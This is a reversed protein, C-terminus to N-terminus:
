KIVTVTQTNWSALRGDATWLERTEVTFGERAALTRGRHFLPALRGDGEVPLTAPDTPLDVTFALTGVPRPRDVRAVVAVWWADALAVVVAADLESVPGLPRVWGSVVSEEVGSFPLGAVPRLELQRLFHPAVPPGMPIVPVALPGAGLEAPPDLALWPRGDPMGEGARPSGLVVVGHAVMAGGADTVRVAATTTGSGQRLVEVAIDARGALLPAVLQASMTRVAMEPRSDVQRVASVMAGTAVGGWAGRGQQLGDPVDLAFRGDTETPRARVLDAFDLPTM